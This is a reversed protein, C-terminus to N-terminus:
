LFINNIAATCNERTVIWTGSDLQKDNLFNIGDIVVDNYLEYEGNDQTQIIFDEAAYASLHTTSFILFLATLFSILRIQRM